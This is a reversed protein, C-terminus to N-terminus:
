QSRIVAALREVGAILDPTDYFAFSLRMFDSLGGRSSFRAGPVFEVQHAKARPLLAQADTGEPLRVWIFFGGEPEVFAIRGALHTRLAACMTAMRASYTHRLRTLHATLLGLEIASRVVGSTFPNFGGGSDLLGCGIFRAVRAPSAQLWGLRLGPALIKSFSGLSIIDAALCSGALPPPPPATYSLPHYVEDAVV